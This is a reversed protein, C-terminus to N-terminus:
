NIKIIKRVHKQKQDQIILLYPGSDLERTSITHEIGASQISKVTRGMMDLVKIEVTGSPAPLQVSLEERVPNPFVKLEKNRSMETQTILYFLIM